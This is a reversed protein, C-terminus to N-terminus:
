VAAVLQPLQWLPLAAVPLGAVCMGVVALQKAHWPTDGPPQVGVLHFWVGTGTALAQALQWM